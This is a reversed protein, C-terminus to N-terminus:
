AIHLEIRCDAQARGLSSFLADYHYHKFFRNLHKSSSNAVEWIIIIVVIIACYKVELSFHHSLALSVVANAHRICLLSLRSELVRPAAAQPLKQPFTTGVGGSTGHPAVGGSSPM